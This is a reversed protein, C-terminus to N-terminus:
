IKVPNIPNTFDVLGRLFTIDSDDVKMRREKLARAQAMTRLIIHPAMPLVPTGQVYDRKWENQNGKKLISGVGLNQGLFVSMMEIQNAAETTIIPSSNTPPKQLVVHPLAKSTVRGQRIDKQALSITQQTYTFHVPLFRRIMGLGHWKELNSQFMDPTVGTIVGVPKHKLEKTERGDDVRMMGDAMVSLLSAITLSSVSSKHSLVPNFDELSIHSIKEEKDDRLITWLGSSTLDNTIHIYEARFRKLTATKGGGSPAILMISIPTANTVFPTLLAVHIIELVPELGVLHTPAKSEKVVPTKTTSMSTSVICTRLAPV